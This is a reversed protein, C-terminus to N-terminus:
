IISSKGAQLALTDEEVPVTRGISDLIKLKICISFGILIIIFSKRVTMNMEYLLFCIFVVPLLVRNFM